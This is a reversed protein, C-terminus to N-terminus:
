WQNIYEKLVFFRHYTEKVIGLLNIVSAFYTNVKLPVTITPFFNNLIALSQRRFLKHVMFLKTEMKVWYNNQYHILPILIKSYGLLLKITFSTIFLTSLLHIKIKSWAFVRNSKWKLHKPKQRSQPMAQFNQFRIGTTFWSEFPSQDPHWGTQELTAQAAM